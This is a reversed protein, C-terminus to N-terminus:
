AWGGSDPRTTPADHGLYPALLLFGAVRPGYQSGAMRVALGAGSSHGGLIIRTGPHRGEVYDMLDAVDDELQNIYDIDGRRKAAHGHGRLDPTYVRAVAAAALRTSLQGLYSGHYGSGHLLLLSIECTGGAQYHRVPLESGDRTPYAELPAIQSEPVPPLADFRLAM